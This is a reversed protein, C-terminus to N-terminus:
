LWRFRDPSTTCIALPFAAGVGTMLRNEGVLPFTPILTVMVPLFKTPVLDPKKLPVDAVKLTLDAVEITAATGVPAVVPCKVTFFATRETVLV